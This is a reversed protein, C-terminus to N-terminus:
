SLWPKEVDHTHEFHKMEDLQPLASRLRIVAIPAERRAAQRRHDTAKPAFHGRTLQGGPRMYSNV